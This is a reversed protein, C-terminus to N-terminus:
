SQKSIWLKASGKKSNVRMENYCVLMDGSM